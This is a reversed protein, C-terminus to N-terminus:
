QKVNAYCAKMVLENAEKTAGANMLAVIEKWSDLMAAWQPSQCRMMEMRDVFEPVAELLGLCRKFDSLDHPHNYEHDFGALVSAMYKSSSGTDDSVLWAILGSNPTSKVTEKEFERIIDDAARIIANTQRVSISTFGQENLGKCIAAILELQNIM